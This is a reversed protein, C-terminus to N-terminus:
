AEYEFDILCSEQLTNLDYNRIYRIYQKTFLDENIFSINLKQKLRKMCLKIFMIALDLQIHSNCSKLVKVSKQFLEDNIILEENILKPNKGTLFM